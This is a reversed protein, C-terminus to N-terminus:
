MVSQSRRQMAPPYVTVTLPEETLMAGIPAYPHLQVYRLPITDPDPPVTM